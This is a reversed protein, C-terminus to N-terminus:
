WRYIIVMINNIFNDLLLLFFDVDDIELYKIDMYLSGKLSNSQQTGQKYLEQKYNEQYWWM